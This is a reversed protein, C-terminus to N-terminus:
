KRRPHHKITAYETASEDKMVTVTSDSATQSFDPNKQFSVTAYTLGEDKLLQVTSYITMATNQESSNTPSSVNRHPHHTTHNIEEYDNFGGDDNTTETRNTTPSGQTKTSRLKCFILVLGGFLLLSVSFIMTITISFSSAKTVQLHVRTYISSGCWYMGSDEERLDTITVRFAGASADESLSFRGSRNTESSVKVGEHGCSSLEQGMCFFKGKNKESDTRSSCNISVNLAERGLVHLEEKMVINLEMSLYNMLVGGTRVGCWYKGADESTLGSLTVTFVGATTNDSLSFRKVKKQLQTQSHLGTQETLCKDEKEKCFYKSHQQYNSAYPCRVEVVDGETGIVTNSKISIQVKTTLSAYSIYWESTEVGCWYVGADSLTLNSISVKLLEAQSHDSFSYKGTARFPSINQCIHDEDEKCFHKPNFRYTPPYQCTINVTEGLYGAQSIVKGCCPDEKVEMKVEIYQETFQTKNVGCRYTGESVNRFFVM